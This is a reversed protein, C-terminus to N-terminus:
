TKSTSSNRRNPTSTMKKFRSSPRLGSSSRRRCTCPIIASYSRALNDFAMAPAFEMRRARSRDIDQAARRIAVPIDIFVVSASLRAIVHQRLLRPYDALDKGRDPAVPERNALDTLAQHLSAFPGPCPAGHPFATHDPRHQFIRRVHATRSKALGALARQARLQPGVPGGVALAAPPM